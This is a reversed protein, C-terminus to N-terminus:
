IIANPDIQRLLSKFIDLTKEGDLIVENIHDTQSEDIHNLDLSTKLELMYSEMGTIRDNLVDIKDRNTLM